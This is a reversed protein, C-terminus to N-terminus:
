QQVGAAGAYQAWCVFEFREPTGIGKLSRFRLAYQGREVEIHANRRVIAGPVDGAHEVFLEKLAASAVASETGGACSSAPPLGDRVIEIARRYLGRGAHAALDPPIRVWTSDKGPLGLRVEVERYEQRQCIWDCVVRECQAVTWSRLGEGSAVKPTTLTARAYGPQRCHAQDEREAAFLHAFATMIGGQFEGAPSEQLLELERLSGGAAVAPAACALAIAARVAQRQQLRESLTLM